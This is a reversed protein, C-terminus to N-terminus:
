GGSRKYNDMWRLCAAQFEDRDEKPISLSDALRAIALYTRQSEERRQEFLNFSVGITLPIFLWGFFSIVWALYYLVGPLFQIYEQPSKLGLLFEGTIVLAQGFPSHLWVFFPFVVTLLISVALIYPSSLVYWYFVAWRKHGIM